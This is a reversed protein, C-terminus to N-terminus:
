KKEEEPFDIKMSNVISEVQRLMNRKKGDPAYVYGMMYIIRSNKEDLVVNLVFPGGMFDNEATWLGRILLAYHIGDYKYFAATMPTKLDLAMWTSDRPGPIYKKLEENMRDLIIQYDMQSEHEYKEEFFIIGKSDVRTESSIWVFNSTDKNIYYGGPCYM